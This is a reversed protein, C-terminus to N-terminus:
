CICLCFSIFLLLKKALNTCLCANIHLAHLGGLFPVCTSQISYPYCLQVIHAEQLSLFNKLIIMFVFLIGSIYSCTSFTAICSNTDICWGLSFIENQGFTWPTENDLESLLHRQACCKRAYLPALQPPTSPDFLDVMLPGNSGYVVVCM